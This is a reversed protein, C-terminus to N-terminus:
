EAPDVVAVREMDQDLLMSLCVFDEGIDVEFQHVVEALVEFNAWEGVLNLDEAVGQLLSEPLVQLGHQPHLALVRLHPEFPSSVVRSTEGNHGHYTVNEPEAIAVGGINHKFAVRTPNHM